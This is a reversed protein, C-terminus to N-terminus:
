RSDELATEYRKRWKRLTNPSTQFIEQVDPTLGCTGAAFAMLVAQWPRFRTNAWPTGTKWNIRAGCNGCSALRGAMVRGVSEPATLQAGCRVCEIEGGRAADIILGIASRDDIWAHGASRASDVLKRLMKLQRDDMTDLGNKTM